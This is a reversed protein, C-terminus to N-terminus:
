SQQLCDKSWGCKVNGSNQKAIKVTQFTKVIRVIKAIIVIIAFEVIKVTNVITHNYKM